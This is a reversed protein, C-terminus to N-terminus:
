SSSEALTADLITAVLSPSTILGTFRAAVRGKADIVLTTPVANPSIKGAFALKV